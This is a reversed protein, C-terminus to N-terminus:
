KYFIPDHKEYLRQNLFGTSREQAYEAYVRDQATVSIVATGIYYKISTKGHYSSVRVQDYSLRVVSIVVNVTIAEHTFFEVFFLLSAFNRKSRGM